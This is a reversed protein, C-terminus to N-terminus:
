YEYNRVNQIANIARGRTNVCVYMSSMVAQSKKKRHETRENTEHACKKVTLFQKM